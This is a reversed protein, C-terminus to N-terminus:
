DLIKVKVDVPELPNDRHDTKEAVIKDAVDM